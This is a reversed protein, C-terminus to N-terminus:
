QIEDPVPILQVESANATAELNDGASGNWVGISFYRESILVYGSGIFDTAISTSQVKGVGIFQLNNIQVATLAADSAGVVGDIDTANTSEALYLEVVEAVVAATEFQFIGRWKYLRPKSGAGRDVQASIRGVGFALNNLTLVADGGSDRLSLATEPAVYVKNAM